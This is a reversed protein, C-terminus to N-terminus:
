KESPSVGADPAKPAPAWYRQPRAGLTTMGRCGFDDDGPAWYRQVGTGWSEADNLKTM